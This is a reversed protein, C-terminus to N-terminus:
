CEENRFIIKNASAILQQYSKKWATIYISGEETISFYKRKPGYPSTGIRCKIYGKQELRKLIPYFTGEHIDILGAKELDSLIMYGYTEGQAIITLICGELLGKLMQSEDM